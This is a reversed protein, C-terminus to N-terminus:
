QILGGFGRGIPSSCVHGGRLNRRDPEDQKHRDNNRRSNSNSCGHAGRIIESIEATTEPKVLFSPVYGKMRLKPYPRYPRLADFKYSAPIRKASLLRDQPIASELIKEIRREDSM